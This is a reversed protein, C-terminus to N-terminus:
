DYKDDKKFEIIELTQDDKGFNTYEAEGSNTNQTTDKEVDKIETGWSDTIMPLMMIAGIPALLGDLLGSFFKKM